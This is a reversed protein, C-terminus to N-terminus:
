QPKAIELYKKLNEPEILIDGDRVIEKGHKHGVAELCIECAPTFDFKGSLADIIPVYRPNKSEEKNQRPETLPILEFIRGFYSKGSDTYCLWMDGNPEILATLKDRPKLIIKETMSSFRSKDGHRTYVGTEERVERWAAHEYSEEPEVRGGPLVLQGRRKPDDKKFRNVVLIGEDKEVCGFAVPVYLHDMLKYEKLLESLKYTKM